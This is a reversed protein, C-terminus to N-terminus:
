NNEDTNENNNGNKHNYEIEFQEILNNKYLEFM